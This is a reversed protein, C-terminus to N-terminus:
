FSLTSFIALFILFIFIFVLLDVPYILTANNQKVIDMNSRKLDKKVNWCSVANNQMEAFFMVNTNMDLFHSGSQSTPGRQGIFKFDNGHTRRTSLTENRLVETSV